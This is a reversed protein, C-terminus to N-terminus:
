LHILLPLEPRLDFTKQQTANDFFLEMVYSSGNKIIINEIGHVTKMTETSLDVDKSTIVIRTVKKAGNKHKYFERWLAYEEPIKKLDRLTEFVDYQMKPYVVFISPEKLHTKSNKAAYISRDNEMWSQHYQIKRFPIKDVKYEKVKLAISFPSAGNKNFNARESFDLDKNKSNNVEFEKQNYVFIFELYTNLFYFYRGSTGQGHHVASLSDPIATFGIDILKQKAKQPNKVWINFHDVELDSSINKNFEETKKEKCSALFLVLTFISLYNKISM